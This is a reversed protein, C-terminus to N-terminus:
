RIDSMCCFGDIASLEENVAAHFENDYREEFTANGDRITFTIFYNHYNSIILDKKRLNLIQLISDEIGPCHEAGLYRINMLYPDPVDLFSSGDVYDLGRIDLLRLAHLRQVIMALGVETVSWCWVLCLSEIDACNQTILDIIVDNVAPCEGLNLFKLRSPFEDRKEVDSLRFFNFLGECTFQQGKRLHLHELKSLTKVYGLSLDTASECFSVSLLKLNQCCTLAQFGLDDLEWGDLYLRTLSGAFPSSVLYTGARNDLTRIGDISLVELPRKMSCLLAYDEVTMSTCYTLILERLNKFGEVFLVAFVDGSVKELQELNLREVNPFCRMMFYLVSLTLNPFFGIDLLKVSPMVSPFLDIFQKETFPETCSITICLKQIWPGMQHLFESVSKKCYPPNGIFIRVERWLNRSKVLQNWKRSLVSLNRMREVPHIYEIIQLLIMDPLDELVVADGNESECRSENPAIQMSSIPSMINEPEAILTSDSPFEKVPYAENISCGKSCRPYWETFKWQHREALKAENIPFTLDHSPKNPDGTIIDQPVGVVVVEARCALSATQQPFSISASSLSGPLDFTVRSLSQRGSVVSVEESNAVEMPSGVSCFFFGFELYATLLTRM